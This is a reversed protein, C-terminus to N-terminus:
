NGAHNSRLEIRVLSMAIAEVAQVIGRIEDHVDPREYALCVGYAWTDLVEEQLDRMTNRGNNPVLPKGYTQRGVHARELIRTGLIALVLADTVTDDSRGRAKVAGLRGM